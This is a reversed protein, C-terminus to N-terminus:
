STGLSGLARLVGDIFQEALRKQEAGAGTAEISGSPLVAGTWGATHWFGSALAPLVGAPYPWPSVYFYPDAYRQDGPSLGVGINELGPRGGPLLTAIDFHHPWCRVGSAGANADALARLVLFADHYYDSLQRFSPERGDISFKAGHLLPHDDLEFHPPKELPAPEMGRGRLLGALWSKADGMTKGSLPLTGGTGSNALM